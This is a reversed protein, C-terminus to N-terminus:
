EYNNRIAKRVTKEVDKKEVWVYKLEGEHIFDNHVEAKGIKTCVKVLEVIKEMVAIGEDFDVHSMIYGEQVASNIDTTFKAFWAKNEKNIRITKYERKIM